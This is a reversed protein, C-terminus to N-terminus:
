RPVIATELGKGRRPRNLTVFRDRGRDGRTLRGVGILYRGQRLDCRDGPPYLACPKAHYASWIVRPCGFQSIIAPDQGAVPYPGSNVNARPNKDRRVPPGERSRDRHSARSLTNNAASCFRQVAAAAYKTIYSLLNGHTLLVCKGFNLLCDQQKGQASMVFDVSTPRRVFREVQGPRCSPEETPAKVPSRAVPAASQGVPEKATAFASFASLSRTGICCRPVRGIVRSVAAQVCSVQALTLM